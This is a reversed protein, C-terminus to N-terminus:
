GWPPLVLVLKNVLHASLFGAGRGWATGLFSKVLADSQERNEAGLLDSTEAGGRTM